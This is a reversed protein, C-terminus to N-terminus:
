EVHRLLLDAVDGWFEDITPSFVEFNRHNIQWDPMSYTGETFKEEFYVEAVVASLVACIVLSTVQFQM